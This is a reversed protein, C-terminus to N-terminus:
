KKPHTRILPTPTVAHADSAEGSPAESSSFELGVADVDLAVAVATSGPGPAAVLEAVAPTPGVVLSVAAPVVPVCAESPGVAMGGVVSTAGVATADLLSPNADDVDVDAAGDSSPAPPVGSTGSVLSPV